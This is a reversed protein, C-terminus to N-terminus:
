LLLVRHLVQSGIHGSHRRVYPLSGSPVNFPGRLSSSPDRLRPTWVSSLSSCGSGDDRCFGGSDWRGDGSDYMGPSCLTLAWWQATCAYDWGAYLRRREDDEGDEGADRSIVAGSSGDETEVADADDPARAAVSVHATWRGTAGALSRPPLFLDEGAVLATRECDWGMKALAAVEKLSVRTLNGVRPAGDTACTLWESVGALQWVRRAADDFGFGGGATASLILRADGEGLEEDYFTRADGEAFGLELEARLGRRAVAELFSEASAPTADVPTAIRGTRDRLVVAPPAWIGDLSDGLPELLDALEMRDAVGKGRPLVVAGFGADGGERAVLSSGIEVLM